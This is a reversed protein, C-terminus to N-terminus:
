LVGFVFRLMNLPKSVDDRGQRVIRVIRAASAVVAQAKHPESYGDRDGFKGGTMATVLTAFELNLPVRMDKPLDRALRSVDSQLITQAGRLQIEHKVIAAAYEKAEDSGATPLQGNERLEGLLWYELGLAATDDTFKAFADCRASLQDLRLKVWMVSLPIAAGGLAAFFSWAAGGATLTQAQEPM